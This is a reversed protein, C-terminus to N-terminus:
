LSALTLPNYNYKAFITYATGAASGTRSGKAVKWGHGTDVDDRTAYPLCGEGQGIKSPSVIAMKQLESLYFDAKRKYYGAKNIDDKDRYYEAMIKFTVVMQATWETSVIGGRPTNKYKGFDFGSIKVQEGEPRSYYTTVRCNREAFDVIQDPDMGEEKLREPGIAAIAWAFTDTAITADGKGRNLRGERTNFAHKKIWLFADERAKLYKKNGSIKYLMDFFAYADLNHETSFWSFKPGGRIGYDIDQSQLQLLWEGIDEAISLYQTDKFKDIYQLIAIGLWINPGAHVDYEVILGTYADYANVFAGEKKEARDRYFNLIERANSQDGMLIFSQCALSQDYTFAWDELGKDGEYSAVLGTLANQHNKIWKYMSSIGKEEVMEFSPMLDELGEEASIKSRSLESIRQKLFAAERTLSAIRSSLSTKESLAKKLQDKTEEKDKQMGLLLEDKKKLEIGLLELERIKNNYEEVKDQNELLKDEIEKRESDFGLIDKELKSKRGSLEVLRKVLKRNEMKLKLDHTYFYSLGLVLCIVLVSIFKPTISIRRAHFYIRDRDKPDIELFSLGILFKNPYGSKIKSYWAITAISRTERYGLPIHIHLDLKAKKEKLVDEFDEEINNVELCIGGKGVNRTFGQKIDSVSGGTEPDLFQFEVPFTVNLRVYQRRESYEANAEQPKEKPNEASKM